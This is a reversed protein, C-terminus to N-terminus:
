LFGHLVLYKAVSDYTLKKPQGFDDTKSYKLAAKADKIGSLSLYISLIQKTADVTFYGIIQKQANIINYTPKPHALIKYMPNNKKEKRKKFKGVIKDGDSIELNKELSMISFTPDRKVLDGFNEVVANYNDLRNKNIMEIESLDKKLKKTNFRKTTIEEFVADTMQGTKFFGAKKLKKTLYKRFNFTKFNPLIAKKDIEPAVYLYTYYAVRPKTENPLQTYNITTDKIILIIKGDNDKILFNSLKTLSGKKTRIFDYKKEKNVFIKEKKYKVKQSFVPNFIFLTVLLIILNKM